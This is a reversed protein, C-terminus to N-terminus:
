LKIEQFLEEVTIYKHMKDNIRKRLVRIASVSVSRCAACEKTNLGLSSLCFFYFEEDSFSFYATLLQYLLAYEQRLSKFLRDRLLITLFVSGGEIYETVEKFFESKVFRKNKQATIEGIREVIERQLAETRKEIETSTERNNEEEIEIHQKNPIIKRRFFYFLFISVLVVVVATCVISLVTRDHIRRSYEVNMNNILEGYFASNVKAPKVMGAISDCLSHYLEFYVSDGTMAYLSEYASTKTYIYDSRAAEKTYYIASDINGEGCFISGRVLCSKYFLVSDRCLTRIESNYKMASTYDGSILFYYSLANKTKYLEEESEIQPILEITKLLTTDIGGEKDVYYCKWLGRYSESLQSKDSLMSNFTIAKRFMKEAEENINSKFLLLAIRNYYAGLADFDSIRSSDLSSIASLYYVAASDFMNKDEFAVGKEFYTSAKDAEVVRGACSFLLIFLPFVSIYHILRLM